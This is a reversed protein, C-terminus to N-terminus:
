KTGSRCSSTCRFGVDRTASKECVASVIAAASSPRCNCGETNIIYFPIPFETEWLGQLPLTVEGFVGVFVLRQVRYLRLTKMELFKNKSLTSYHEAFDGDKM